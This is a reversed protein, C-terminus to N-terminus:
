LERLETLPPMTKPGQDQLINHAPFNLKKAIAFDEPDTDGSRKRSTGPQNLQILAARGWRTNGM